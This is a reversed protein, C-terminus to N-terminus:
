VPRDPYAERPADQRTEEQQDPTNTDDKEARTDNTGEVIEAALILGFFYAGTKDYRIATARIREALERRTEADQAKCLAMDYEPEIVYDEYDEATVSPLGMVKHEHEVWIQVIAEPTLLAMEVKRRTQERLEDTKTM